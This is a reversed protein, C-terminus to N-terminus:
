HSSPMVTLVVTHDLLRIQTCIRLSSADLVLDFKPERCDDFHCGGALKQGAMAADGATSTFGAFKKDFCSM